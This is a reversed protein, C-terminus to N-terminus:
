GRDPCPLCLRARDLARWIPTKPAAPSAVVNLCHGHPRLDLTVTLPQGGTFADHTTITALYGVETPEVIVAAPPDPLDLKKSRAVASILGRYYTALLAQIGPADGPLAGDASGTASISFVYSWYDPAAPDFMGPAFYLVEVGPPLDPAFEPPLEIREYRWGPAQDCAHDDGAPPPPKSSGCALLLVLVQVQALLSRM